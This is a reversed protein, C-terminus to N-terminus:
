ISLDIKFSKRGEPLGMMRTEDANFACPHPFNAIKSPFRQKDRFRHLIPRHNSYFTLLFDHTGSQITDKRHGQTVGLGPKLTVTYKCTLYRLFTKLTVVNKSM